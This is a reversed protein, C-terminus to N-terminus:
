PHAREGIRRYRPDCPDYSRDRELPEGELCDVVAIDFWNFSPTAPKGSRGLEQWGAKPARSGDVSRKLSGGGDCGLGLQNPARGKNLETRGADFPNGGAHISEARSESGLALLAAAVGLLTNKITNMHQSRNREFGPAAEPRDLFESFGALRQAHNRCRFLLLVHM